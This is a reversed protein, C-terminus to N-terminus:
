SRCPRPRRASAEALRAAFRRLAIGCVLSVTLLRLASFSRRRVHGADPLPLVLRLARYVPYAAFALGPAKNSYLRGGSEAKDEHDGLRAVAEDISFTKWEAMAVVTQFRSLENPNAWPPFVGTFYVTLFASFSAPDIAAGTPRRDRAHTPASCRM